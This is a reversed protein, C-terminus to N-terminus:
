LAGGRRRGSWRWRRRGRQAGAARGPVPRLYHWLYFAVAAANGIRYLV